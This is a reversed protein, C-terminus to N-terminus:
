IKKWVNKDPWVIGNVSPEFVGLLNSPGGKPSFDVFMTGPLDEKALITWQKSGDINDSGIIKVNKDKVTIKRLCGPHNPDNYKGEFVSTVEAAHVVSISTPAIINIGQFTLSTGVLAQALVKTSIRPLAFGDSHGVILLVLLLVLLSAMM